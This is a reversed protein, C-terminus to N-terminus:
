SRFEAKITTFHYLCFEQEPEKNYLAEEESLTVEEESEETEEDDTDYEHSSNEFFSNDFQEQSTDSSNSGYDFNEKFSTKSSDASLNTAEH